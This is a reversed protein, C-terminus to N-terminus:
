QSAWIGSQAVTYWQSVGDSVLTIYDGLVNSAATNKIGTGGAPAVVAGDDNTAKAQITDTGDPDILIEGSASGCKFTYFLGSTSAAPLVFTQTSSAKTAIMVLGSEAATLTDGSGTLQIEATHRLGTVAGSLNLAGSLTVTEASNLGNYKVVPVYDEIYTSTSM